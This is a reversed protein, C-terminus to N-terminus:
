APAVAPDGHIEGVGLQAGPGQPRATPHLPEGRLAIAETPQRAGAPHPQGGGLRDLRPGRAQAQAQLDATWQM